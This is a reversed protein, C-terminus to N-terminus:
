LKGIISGKSNQSSMIVFGFGENEHRSLYVEKAPKQLTKPKPAVPPPKPRQGAADRMESLAAASKAKNGMGERMRDNNIEEMEENPIGDALSKPRAKKGQLQM